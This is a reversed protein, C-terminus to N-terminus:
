YAAQLRALIINESPRDGSPSGGEFSTHEYDLMTKFNRALHWNVGAGWNTAKHASLAPDAVQLTFADADIRLEGIRAVLEVAGFGLARPNLAHKPTVRTPLNEEGTIFFSGTVQWADHNLRTSLGPAIVIQTSQVYEGFIGFPGIYYFAQPALRRQTGGASVGDAYRFFTTGVPTHYAPLAGTHTGHTAAIGLGLKRLATVFTPQFPRVVLRGALDKKDNNDTDLSADDGAGNFIGGRYVVTGGLIDGHLEIGIDRDAVLNTPLSYEMFPLDTPNLNRELGAPAILKGGRLQIEKFLRINVFAVDIRPTGTLEPAIRWDFYEFFTGDMIPRVRRLLFTNTGGDDLFFRADVQVFPLFRFQFKGDASGIAVADPGFSVHAATSKDAGKKPEAPEDHAMGHKEEMLRLRHELEEIREEAHSAGAGPSIPTSSSHEGSAPEAGTPAKDAPPAGPAAPGTSAPQADRPPETPANQAAAVAPVHLALLSLAFWRRLRRM